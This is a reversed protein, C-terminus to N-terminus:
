CRVAAGDLIDSKKKTWREGEEDGGGFAFSRTTSQRSPM